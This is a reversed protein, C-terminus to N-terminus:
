RRWNGFPPQAIGPHRGQALRHRQRVGQSCAPPSPIVGAEGTMVGAGRATSSITATIFWHVHPGTFASLRSRCGGTM